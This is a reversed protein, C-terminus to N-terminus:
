SGYIEDQIHSKLECDLFVKEKPFAVMKSRTNMVKSRVLTKGIQNQHCHLLFQITDQEQLM